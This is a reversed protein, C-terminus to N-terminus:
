GPTVDGVHGRHLNGADGRRIGLELYRIDFDWLGAGSLNTDLHMGATHTM